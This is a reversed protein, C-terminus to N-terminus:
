FINNCGGGIYMRVFDIYVWICFIYFYLIFVFYVCFVTIKIKEVYTIRFFNSTLVYM